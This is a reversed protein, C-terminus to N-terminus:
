QKLRFFRQANTAPVSISVTGSNTTVTAVVNSWLVPSALSDAYQPVAGGAPAEPWSLQLTGNSLSFQIPVSLKTVVLNDILTFLLSPHRTTTSNVDSDGIAINNGGLTLASSDFTAIAVDDITWSVLNNNKTIDVKHWAFGFSGAQTSGGQTNVADSGYEATSLALQVAPATHSALSPIATYYADLNQNATPGTGAAYVGTAAPAFTGSQPYLRYDNAIGGDGTTAFAIGDMQGDTVLGTNGVVLPVTGSTGVAFLVNHTGGESAANDALGSVNPAGNFNVWAYFSLHYSVGFNRGTPSVSLGSTVGAPRTTVPSAAGGPVNSRLRLGLTDSSGPAAPIGLASYDFAFTASARFGDALPAYNVTWSSSTDTNFNESFLVASGANTDAVLTTFSQNTGFGTGDANTAVARFHYTLSGLLGTLMQSFNTNGFGSGLPQPLTVNGYNTTTGWEFWATTNTGEPNAVGNLTANTVGLATAPFTEVFPTFPLIGSSRYIAAGIRTGENNGSAPASDTVTAGSGEDCRYYALLGTESGSLSRNKNAQIQAQSLAVNWVTVEDLLLGISASPGSLGGLRMDQTTTPAGPSGTWVGSDAPAGDLYLKGGSADVTLAVHHWLGDTVFGGNLGSGNGVYSLGSAFYTASLMGSVIQLQWGNVAGDYKKVLDVTIANPPMIQFWATVTLPYANLANTHPVSVSGITNIFSLAYGPGGDAFAAALPLTM